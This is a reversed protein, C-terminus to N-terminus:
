GRDGRARKVAKSTWDANSDQRAAREDSSRAMDKQGAGRWMKAVIEHNRARHRLDAEADELHEVQTKKAM